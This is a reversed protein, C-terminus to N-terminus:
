ADAGLHGPKDVFSLVAYAATATVAAEMKQYVGLKKMFELVLPAAEPGAPWLQFNPNRTCIKSM